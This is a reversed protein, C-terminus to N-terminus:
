HIFQESYVAFIALFGSGSLHRSDRRPAEVGSSFGPEGDEMRMTAFAIVGREIGVSRARVFKPADAIPYDEVIVASEILALGGYDCRVSARKGSLSDNPAPLM